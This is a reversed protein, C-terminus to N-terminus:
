DLLFAYQKLEDYDLALLIAEQRNIKHTREIDLSMVYVIFNTTRMNKYKDYDEGLITKAYEIFRDEVPFYASDVTTYLSRNERRVSTIIADASTPTIEKNLVLNLLICDCVLMSSMNHVSRFRRSVTNAVCAYATSSRAALAIKRLMSDPVITKM